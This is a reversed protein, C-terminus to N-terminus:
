ARLASLSTVDAAFSMVSGRLMNRMLLPVTHGFFSQSRSPSAENFDDQVGARSQRNISDPISQRRLNLFDNQFIRQAHDDGIGRTTNSTLKALQDARFRM